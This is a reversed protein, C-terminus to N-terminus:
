RSNKRTRAKTLDSREPRTKRPMAPRDVLPWPPAQPRDAVRFSAAAQARSDELDILPHESLRRTRLRKPATPPAQADQSSDSPTPKSQADM